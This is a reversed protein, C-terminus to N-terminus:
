DHGNRNSLSDSLIYLGQKYGPSAPILDQWGEEDM